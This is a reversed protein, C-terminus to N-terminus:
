FQFPPWTADWRSPPPTDLGSGEDGDDPYNSTGCEPCTYTDTMPEYLAGCEECEIMVLGGRM